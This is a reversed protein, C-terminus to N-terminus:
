PVVAVRRAHEADHPPDNPKVVTFEFHIVTDPPPPERFPSRAALGVSGLAFVFAAVASLVRQM